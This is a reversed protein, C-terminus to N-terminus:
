ICHLNPCIMGALYSRSSSFCLCVYIRQASSNEEFIVLTSCM